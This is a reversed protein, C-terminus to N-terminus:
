PQNDVSQCLNRAKALLSTTSNFGYESKWIIFFSLCFFFLGFFFGIAGLDADEGKEVDV